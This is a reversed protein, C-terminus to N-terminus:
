EVVWTQSGALIKNFDPIGRKSIVTKIKEELADKYTIRDEKYFIGFPCPLEYLNTDTLSNSYNPECFQSLIFAKNKDSEDHIWLDNISINEKKLNIVKPKNDDLIIGFENEHGFILPKNNELILTYKSKQKKDTFKIYANDNFIKCNQYIEIFSTGKHFYANKLTNRLHPLNSDLTRAIFTGGSGLALAIPNVPYDISGYPSSVTKKNQESTPSFQGKTLAYIKNNFLLINININRRLLHIFHNGGISLCDGDGTVVWVDLDPRALKLGSAIATARGHIGHIGYTNIYYTFRSSCGIGSVFVTNEPRINLEALLKQVQALIAYDGCGPCWKVEQGSIFDKPSLSSIDKTKTKNEM